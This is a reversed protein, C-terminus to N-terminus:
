PARLLMLSPVLNINDNKRTSRLDVFKQVVFSHHYKHCGTNLQQIKNVTASILMFIAGTRIPGQFHDM